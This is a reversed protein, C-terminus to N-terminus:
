RGRPWLYVLLFLALAGGGRMVQGGSDLEVELFGPLTIGVGAAGLARLVRAASAQGATDIPNVVTSLWLVVLLTGSAGATTREWRTPFVGQPADFVGLWYAFAVLLIGAAVCAVTALREGLTSRPPTLAIRSATLVLAQIPERISDPLAAVERKLVVMKEALPANEVEALIRFAERRTREVDGRLWDLM